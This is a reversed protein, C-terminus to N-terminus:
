SEILTNKLGVNWHFQCHEAFVFVDGIRTLGEGVDVLVVLSAVEPTDDMVWGVRMEVPRCVPAVISADHLADAGMTDAVGIPVRDIEDLTGPTLFDSVGLSDM